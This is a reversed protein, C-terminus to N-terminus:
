ANHPRAVYYGRHGSREYLYRQLQVGDFTLWAPMSDFTADSPLKVCISNRWDNKDYLVVVYTLGTACDSALNCDPKSSTPYQM